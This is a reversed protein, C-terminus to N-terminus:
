SWIDFTTLLEQSRVGSKRRVHMIRHCRCCFFGSSCRTCEVIDFAILYWYNWQSNARSAKIVNNIAFRMWSVGSSFLFFVCGFVYQIFGLTAAINFFISFKIAVQWTFSAFGWVLNGCIEDFRKNNCKSIGYFSRRKKESPSFTLGPSDYFIHIPFHLSIDWITRINVSTAACGKAKRDSSLARLVATQLSSHSNIHRRTHLMLSSFLSLISTATHQVILANLRDSNM